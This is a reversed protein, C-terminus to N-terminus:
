VEEEVGVVGPSGEGQGVPEEEVGKREVFARRWTAYKKGMLIARLAQRVERTKGRRTRLTGSEIRSLLREIARDDTTVGKTKRGSYLPLGYWDGLLAARQLSSDLNFGAELANMRTKLKNRAATLEKARSFKPRGKGQNLKHLDLECARAAELGMVVKEATKVENELMQRAKTALSRRAAEEIRLLRRRWWDQRSENVPLGRRGLIMLPYQLPQHVNRYYDMRSGLQARLAVGVGLTRTTDWRNYYHYFERPDHIEELGASVRAQNHLERWIKTKPVDNMPESHDVLGKWAVTGPCHTLAQSQLGLPLSPDAVGAVVITDVWRKPLTLGQEFLEVLDFQANHFMTLLDTRTFLSQIFQALEENWWSTWGEEEKWSFGVLIPKGQGEIDISVLEPSDELMRWALDSPTLIAGRPVKPAQRAPWNMAKAIDSILLPKLHEQGKEEESEMGRVLFAPHLSLTAWVGPGALDERIPFLSGRTELVSWHLNGKSLSRLANGGLVLIPWRGSLAAQHVSKHRRLCGEVIEPSPFVNNRPTCLIANFHAVEGGSGVSKARWTFGNFEQEVQAVDLGAAQEAWRLLRGSKGVFGAGLQAEEAGGAEGYVVLKTRSTLKDPPVFDVGSHGTLLPCGYCSNPYRM